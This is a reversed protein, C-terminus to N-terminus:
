YGLACGDKRPDSAGTLTGRDWDIWIAQGGGHPEALQTTQHGLAELGHKTDAPVSAELQYVGEYHLGRALDIAEQLDMGYDLINTAVHVQGVPQYQGGMVGFPMVARGQRTILSPIITHLPRKGPAICNPHGPEIRFGAGRNQLLIGTKEAVVASGFAYAVSNIFSCANRDKDVVSIYATSPHAPPRVIPLEAVRDLSIKARQEAAFEASLLKAVDVRVFRPDGVERERAMFALRTAEAELHFREVSLPAYKTLDFGGLINLILLMTVGPGNPPCQWIEHGRYSTKIPTAVETAQGAFDDLTHLGGVGRLTAVIDEAVKGTYFADRGQSAILRLTDALEPQRIVDGVKPAAGGPLLYRASNTGKQLKALNNAWDWGIRPAVVYGDAAARIAPQVAADLGKRGHDALLKAWADVGGPVTVAHPGTLPIAKIGRELYWEATAAAPAKGSGNYAVIRDGGGPAYLIFGDGGLGTSQPEIVALVAAAAITADAATGGARLMDIAALTALPHSTAAMGNLAHVTSRGPFHFHRM